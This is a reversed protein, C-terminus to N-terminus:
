SERSIIITIPLAHENIGQNFVYIRRSTNLMLHPTTLFIQCHQGIGKFYTDKHYKIRVLGSVLSYLLQGISFGFSVRIVYLMM